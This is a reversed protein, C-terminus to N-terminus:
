QRLADFAELAAAAAVIMRRQAVLLGSVLGPEWELISLDLLNQAAGTM